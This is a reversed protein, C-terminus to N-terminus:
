IQDSERQQPPVPKMPQAAGNKSTTPADAKVYSPTVVGHTM